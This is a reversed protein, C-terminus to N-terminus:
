LLVKLAHGRVQERAPSLISEGDRIDPLRATAESVHEQCLPKTHKFLPGHKWTSIQLKHSRLYFNLM